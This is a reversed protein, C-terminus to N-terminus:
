PVELGVALWGRSALKDLAYVHRGDRIEPRVLPVLAEAAIGMRFPGLLKAELGLRPGVAGWAAFGGSGRDPDYAQTFGGEIAACGWSVLAREGWSYCGRLAHTALSVRAQVEGVELLSPLWIITAFELGFSRTFTRRGVVSFLIATDRLTTWDVGAETRLLV